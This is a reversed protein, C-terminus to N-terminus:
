VLSLWPLAKEERIRGTEADKGGREWGEGVGRGGRMGCENSKVPKVM